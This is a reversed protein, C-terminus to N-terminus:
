LHYRWTNNQRSAGPAGPSDSIEPEFVGIRELFWERQEQEEPSFFLDLLGQFLSPEKQLILAAPEKRRQGEHWGIIYAVAKPRFLDIGWTEPWTLRLRLALRKDGERYIRLERYEPCDLLSYRYITEGIVIKRPKKWWKRM